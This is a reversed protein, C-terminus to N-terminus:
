GKEYTQLAENIADALQSAEPMLMTISTYLKIEGEDRTYGKEWGKLTYERADEFEERTEYEGELTMIVLLPEKDLPEISKVLVTLKEHTIGDTVTFLKSYKLVM